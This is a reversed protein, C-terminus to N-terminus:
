MGIGNNCAIEFSSSADHRFITCFVVEKESRKNLLVPITFLFFLIKWSVLQMVSENLLALNKNPVKYVKFGKIGNNM